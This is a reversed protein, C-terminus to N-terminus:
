ERFFRGPNKGDTGTPQVVAPAPVEDTEVRTRSSPTLGFEVLYQRYLGSKRDLAADVRRVEDRKVTDRLWRRRQARLQRLESYIECCLELASRDIETLLGLMQLQPALRRWEQRGVADLTRPADLTRVVPPKAENRPLPRKGPNGELRKLVTPKPRRGKM